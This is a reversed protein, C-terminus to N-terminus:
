IELDRHQFLVVSICLPTLLYVSIVLYNITEAVEGKTLASLIESLANTPLYPRLDGVAEVVQSSTLMLLIAFYLSQTAIVLFIVLGGIASQFFFLIPSVLGILAVTYFAETLFMNLIICPNNEPLEIGIAAMTLMLVAATIAAVIAVLITAELMKALLAKWRSVGSGIVNQIAKAKFDQYFVAILVAAGVFMAFVMPLLALHYLAEGGGYGSRYHSREVFIFLAYLAAPIMAVVWFSVRKLVRVLDTYLFRLM